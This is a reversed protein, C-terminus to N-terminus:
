IYRPTSGGKTKAMDQNGGRAGSGHAHVKVHGADIMILELEPNDILQELLREWQMRWIKTGGTQRKCLIVCGLLMDADSKRIQDLAVPVLM